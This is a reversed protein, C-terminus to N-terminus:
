FELANAVNIRGFRLSYLAPKAEPELLLQRAIYTKGSALREM